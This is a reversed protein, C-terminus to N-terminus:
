FSGRRRSVLTPRSARVWEPLGTTLASLLRTADQELSRTVSLAAYWANEPDLALAERAHPIATQFRHQTVALQALGSVALPEDRRAAVARTLAEDARTLWSADATERYLQQYGLGLLALARADDPRAAVASELRRVVATSSGASFQAVLQTLDERGIARATADNGRVGGGLVVALAGVFAALGFAIRRRVSTTRADARTPESWPSPPGSAARARM